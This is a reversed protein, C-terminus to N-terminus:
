LRVYEILKNEPIGTAESIQKVHDMPTHESLLLTLRGSGTGARYDQLGSYCVAAAPDMIYRNSRFISNITADGRNKGAVTCYFGELFRPQVEEPVVFMKKRDCADVFEAAVNQGAVSYILAEVGSVLEVSAASTNFTGRHILEWLNSEKNCSCIVTNIPLGMHRAYDAAVPMVVDDGSVVLDFSADEALIGEALLQGYIGLLTAILVSIKFWVTQGETEVDQLLRNQLREFVYGFDGAPNHWLEAVMLRHGISVTRVKSKGIALDMDWLTLRASFFQNLVDAVVQNFPKTKLDSLMNEDFCPTRMPIIGGGDTAKDKTLAVHATYTENKNRTSVYLM